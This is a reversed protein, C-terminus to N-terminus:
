VTDCVQWSCHIASSKPVSAEASSSKEDCVTAELTVEAYPTIWGCGSKQPEILSNAIICWAVKTVATM